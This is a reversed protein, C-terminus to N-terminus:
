GSLRWNTPLAWIFGRRWVRASGAPDAAREMRASRCSPRHQGSADMPTHVAAILEADPPLPVYEKAGARIAKVALAPDTGIGCAVVPVCFRESRLSKVLQGIDLVVDVM